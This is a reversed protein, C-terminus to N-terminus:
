DGQRLPRLMAVAGGVHSRGVLGSGARPATVVGVTVPFDVHAVGHAVRAHEPGTVEHAEFRSPEGPHDSVGGAGVRRDDAVRSQVLMLHAVGDTAAKVVPIAGLRQLEGFAEPEDFVVSQGGVWLESM